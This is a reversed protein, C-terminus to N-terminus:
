PGDQWGPDGDLRFDSRDRRNSRCLRSGDTINRASAALDQRQKELHPRDISAGEELSRSLAQIDSVLAKEQEWRQTLASREEEAATRETSLLAMRESHDYGRRSERELVALENGLQDVRRIAAELAPPPSVQSVAVRACATDLVSIAKDPLQRGTIYRHSLRVAASIAEDLVRVRHHQELKSALGRLMIEATEEDPEAVKVVQFRRALAADKEFYKKYEAWTTAAITRLEGRALAPKLLNAADGQGAQGGAGILTHAEDIFLIIPQLSAAVESIVSKLRNEFEGKVGAGAQLLGLDLVRIAINKLPEPVDNAAIRLALGEVVATKGVGAEGTLIPNNQRRRMLIDVVQRIEGDRGSIPDIKGARAQATLDITFKSLAGDSKVTEETPVSPEPKDAPTVPQSAARLLEPLDQRLRDRSIKLLTPCSDIAIHRLANDDLIALLLIGARVTLVGFQVSALLWGAELTQLLQPSITPVRGNGRKFGEMAATLESIVAEPNLGYARLIAPLEGHDDTLLQFLFHELEVSFHTQSVCKQAALELALRCNKDLKAILSKMDQVM